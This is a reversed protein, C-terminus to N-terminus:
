FQFRALLQLVRPSRVSTVAGFGNTRVLAGSADYPLNVIANDGLAAFLMNNAVADFQTHNLVNFADVRFALRRRGGLGFGKEVSLDVNNIPARNLYNRGSELGISGVPSQSYIDVAFQQYPDNVDYGPGPDGGIIPRNANETNSGAINNNTSVGNIGWTLGYPLGSELRYGGSIQWNNILGSVFANVGDNHPLQYVWNFNFIHRRDFVAPGYNARKDFEDIRSFDNNVDQTDLAKSFTYNANLFLGNAFRRDVQTQLGHYNSNADYVRLNINGYGQYPRLFDADLATQGPLSSAPLTPDQNEPLFRAGYPVANINVQRPLHNAISGVYAIDWIVGGPLKKQFGANFNYTSPVEGSAAQANLGSPALLANNPDLEQLRGLNINPTFTTPPNSILAFSINGEYRDYFVGGGARFIFSQNGTIDYTLGFRPAFLIGNDEILREPTGADGSQGIGNTLNGSGPVIRGINVAPLVQGTVPDVAVRTSGQMGPRYLRVAQNADFLEPIFNSTLGAVDHQPQVWYFRLGYDLTLRDSVKWNDQAFWEINWYRYEGNSYANAQNYNNFVGIAANAAAYSTDFPNSANDNFNIVGNHNTFSTQDKLSKQMYMGFKSTHRGWVKTLNGLVDYTTNFNTFPSQSSNFNAQTGFRGALQFHPPLDQQVADPYLLPLASVGLNARTFEGASDHIYISNHGTGFTVEAFLTPSLVGTASISVNYVPRVDSIEIGPLNATLNFSGYPGIGAGANNSNHFYRGYLRWASSAQWDARFIEERRDIQVAVQSEYNYGAGSANPLPFVNLIALGPAYLRNAPIRGLVGGDQFCGSTNTATCPLGTTYDRILNYPRNNNDVSQSFDGQRELQTPVKVRNPSVPPTFRGQNEFAFFFFLRNRDKNYGGLPVPGGVTFGIDTQRNIPKLGVTSAPNTELARGRERNNIWSNANFSEQRRYGYVSGRYDRGGSKTVLSVQAGSSRGYEAAYANTLIKFEEVADLNISGLVGNNGTDVNSVGDVTYNTTNDRGGNVNFGVGGAAVDSIGPALRTLVLPDRGNVALNEIAASDVAFNRAADRSQVEVVRTSVNVTESVAGLDLTIVGVSLRDAANLVVNSQEITKFSDMTVKLNYTDPLLNLFVFDGAENATTVQTDNRRPSTLEVTAGPVAAGQGDRVTGALSGRTTQAVANGSGIALMLAAGAVM